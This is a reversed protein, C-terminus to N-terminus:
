RVERHKGENVPFVVRTEIGVDNALLNLWLMVCRKKGGYLYVKM